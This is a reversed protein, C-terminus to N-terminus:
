ITILSLLTFILGGLFLLTSTVVLSTSPTVASSIVTEPLALLRKLHKESHLM